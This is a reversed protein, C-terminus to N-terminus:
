GGAGVVTQCCDRKRFVEYAFNEKGPIDKNWGWLMTTRGYPQCCRGGIKDTQSVPAIMSYKYSDKYMIFQPYYGCLGDSGSAAWQSGARHLKFTLRHLELSTAQVNGVHQGVDGIMPFVPGNCGSCWYLSDMGFGFSASACDATCAAQAIINGFLFSDPAIFNEFEVDNHTPDVESLYAIDFGKTELCRTETVVDLVAMLPNIYWHTQWYSHRQEDVTSGDSAPVDLTPAQGGYTFANLVRGSGAQFGGLSTMCWPSRVVDAIRSPEWFSIPVGIDTGCTCLINGSYSHNDEQGNKVELGGAFKMPFMCSWCIDTVYNPFKGTCKAFSDAYANGSFALFLGAILGIVRKM